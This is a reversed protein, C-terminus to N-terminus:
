TTSRQSLRDFGLATPTARGPATRRYWELGLMVMLAVEVLDGGYYMVIAGVEAQGAPVGSPPHGYLYKALVAHGAAFLVLWSMRGSWRVRHRNPDAVLMAATFLYGFLAVHAHVLLHVGPHSHSQRYLETTYLLWLGGLSGVGATLPHGLFRVPASGLVLVLKRAERVPLARLALTVPAGCVLLLPGLMGLLLHGLMHAVFSRHSLEALPGAVAALSALCGLIWCCSRALPWSRGRRRVLVLAVLFLLLAVVWPLAALIDSWGGLGAVGEAGGHGGHPHHEDV